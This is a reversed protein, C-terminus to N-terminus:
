DVIVDAIILQLSQNIKVGSESWLQFYLQAVTYCLTGKTISHNHRKTETKPRLLLSIYFTFHSLLHHAKSIQITYPNRKVLQGCVQFDEIVQLFVTRLGQLCIGFLSETNLQSYETNKPIGFVSTPIPILIEFYRIDTWYKLIGGVSGM